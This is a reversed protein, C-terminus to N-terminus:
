WCSIIFNINAIKSSCIKLRPQVFSFRWCQPNINNKILKAEMLM